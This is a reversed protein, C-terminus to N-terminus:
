KRILYYGYVAQGATGPIEIDRRQELYSDEFEMYQVYDQMLCNEETALYNTDRFRVTLTDLDNVGWSIVITRCQDGNISRFGEASFINVSDGTKKTVGKVIEKGITFMSQDPDCTQWIKISDEAFNETGTLEKGNSGDVVRVNLRTIGQYPDTDCYPLATSKSRCSTLLAALAPILLLYRTM